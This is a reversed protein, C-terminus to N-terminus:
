SPGVTCLPLHGRRPRPGTRGPDSLSPRGPDGRGQPSPRHWRPPDSYGAPDSNRAPESHVTHHCLVLSADIAHIAGAVVWRAPSMVDALSAVLPLRAPLLRTPAWKKFAM